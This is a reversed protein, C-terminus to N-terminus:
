ASSKRSALFDFAWYCTAVSPLLMNGSRCIQKLEPIGVRLIEIYEEKDRAGPDTDLCLQLALFPTFRNRCWKVEPVAAGEELLCILQRSSLHAEESLEARACAELSEHKQPDFGGTPLCYVLSNVGQAYERIITVHGDEWRGSAAEHFPFTVCFHFNAKPHGIIDYEHIEENGCVASAPFKVKRNYCTLYRQHVVVEDVIEFEPGTETPSRASMGMENGASSVAKLQVSNLTTFRAAHSIQWSTSQDQILPTFSNRLFCGVNHM